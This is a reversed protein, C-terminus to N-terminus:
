RRRRCPARLREVTSDVASALCITFFIRPRSTAHHSRRRSPARPTRRRQRARRRAPRRAAPRRWPSGAFARLRGLAARVAGAGVDVLGLRAADDVPPAPVVAGLRLVRRVLVPRRREAEREDVEADEERMMDRRAHFGSLCYMARGGRRSRWSGRRPPPAACRLGLLRELLVFLLDAADVALDVRQQRLDAFFGLRLLRADDGGGLGVGLPELVVGLPLDGGLDIAGTALQAAAHDLRGDGGGLVDSCSSCRRRRGACSPRSTRPRRRPARWPRSARTIM